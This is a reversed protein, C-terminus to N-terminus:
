KYSITCSIQIRKWKNEKMTDLYFLIASTKRLYHTCNPRVSKLTYKVNYDFSDCCLEGEM